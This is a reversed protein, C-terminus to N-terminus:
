ITEDTTKLMKWDPDNLMAKIKPWHHKNYVNIGYKTLWLYAISMDISGIMEWGEQRAKKHDADNRITSNRDLTAQADGEFYLTGKDGDFRLYERVNGVKKVPLIM